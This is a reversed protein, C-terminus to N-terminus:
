RRKNRNAYWGGEEEEGDPAHACGLTMRRTIFEGWGRSLVSAARPGCGASPEPHPPAARRPAGDPVATM